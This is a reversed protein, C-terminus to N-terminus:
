QSLARGGEAESVGKDLSEERGERVSGKGQRAREEAGRREGARM